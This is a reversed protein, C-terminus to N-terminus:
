DEITIANVPCYDAVETATELMTEVITETTGQALGNENICFVDECMSVCLGCGICTNQNVIVKM